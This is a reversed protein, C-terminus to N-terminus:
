GVKEAPPGYFQVSAKSDSGDSFTPRGKCWAHPVTYTQGTDLEVALTVDSLGAFWDLDTSATVDFEPKASFGRRTESFRGPYHGNEKDNREVGGLDIETGPYSEILEGDVKITVKGLTRSM